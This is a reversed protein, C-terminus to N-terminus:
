GSQFFPPFLIGMISHMCKRIRNRESDNTGRRIKVLDMFVDEFNMTKMCEKQMTITHLGIKEMKGSLSFSYKQGPLGIEKLRNQQQQQQKISCPKMTSQLGPFTRREYNEKQETDVKKILNSRSFGLIKTKSKFFQM